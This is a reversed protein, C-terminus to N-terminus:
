PVKKQKNKKDVDPDEDASVEIRDSSETKALKGQDSGSKDSPETSSSEEEKKSVPPFLLSRKYELTPHEEKKKKFFKAFKIM